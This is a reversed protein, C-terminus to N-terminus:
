NTCHKEMKTMIKEAETKKQTSFETYQKLWLSQNFQVVFASHIKKLKLGQRLYLKLNEYYIVFREKDFFNPM